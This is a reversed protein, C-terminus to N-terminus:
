SGEAEIKALVVGLERVVEAGVEPRPAVSVGSTDSPAYLGEKVPFIASSVEDFGLLVLEVGLLLRGTGLVAAENSPDVESAPVVEEVVSVENPLPAEFGVSLKNLVLGASVETGFTTKGVSGVFVDSTKGDSGGM